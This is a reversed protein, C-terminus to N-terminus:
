SGTSGKDWSDLEKGGTPYAFLMVFVMIIFWTVGTIKSHNELTQM